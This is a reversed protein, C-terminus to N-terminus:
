RLANHIKLNMDVRVQMIPFAPEVIAERPPFAVAQQSHILRMDRERGGFPNNAATM